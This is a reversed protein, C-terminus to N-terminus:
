YFSFTRGQELLIKQLLLSEVSDSALATRIDNPWGGLYAMESASLAGKHTDEDFISQQEQVFVEYRIKYINAVQRPSLDDFDLIQIEPNIPGKEEKTETM